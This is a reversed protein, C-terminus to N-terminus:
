FFNRTKKFSNSSSTPKKEQEIFTGNEHETMTRETAVETIPFLQEENSERVAQISGMSRDSSSRSGRVIQSSNGSM